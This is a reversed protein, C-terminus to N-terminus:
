IAILKQLFFSKEKASKRNMDSSTWLDCYSLYDITNSQPDHRYFMEVNGSPTLSYHTAGFENKAETLM